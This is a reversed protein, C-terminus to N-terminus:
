RRGMRAAGDPRVRGAEASLRGLDADVSLYTLGPGTGAAPLLALASGLDRMGAAWRDGISSPSFDLTKAALEHGAAQYALHLLTIEPLTPDLDARLAYERRLAAVSRRTTSAFMIDQTRELVADLSAPRPSRLSFLEVVVCLTDRDPPAAFAVDVPTNNVYGPDCLMRGDVMVPPFSPTIATSALIHEPGIRDRATNFVVEDGTEVDICCVSLRTDSRNLFDFDVLRELTARLPSHDYLAVDNPTGPLAGWFGPLRHTFISPRGFMASWAVHWGNYYQRLKEDEFLAFPTAITAEAWFERLRELRRDPPNGAVIAGTIAGISAGIIWDPRIESALLREYAGALYAGLANGGGFVVITQKPM